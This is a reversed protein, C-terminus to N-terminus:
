NIRNDADAKAEPDAPRYLLTSDRAALRTALMLEHAPVIGGEAEGIARLAAQRGVEDFPVAVSTLQPSTMSAGDSGDYGALAYDKGAQIGKELLGQMIGIAMRDNGAYVSDAQGSRLLQEIQSALALGSKRSYKGELIIDQRLPLDAQELGEVYGAYRDGSNSYHSPGGVFAISRCGLGHLHAVTQRSGAAHDGDVTRHELGEFRQGAVAYPYGAAELEQLAEREGPVESSGLVICADAKRSRFLGAYPSADGPQRFILLLNLGREGAALGIGGLLQSFYFTSFLPVNPMFPLVVGLNGSRKKAFQRAIDSPVYGLAEAAEMVKLRTAEKIPGTGSLVRSVTAESVGALKAVETRKTM